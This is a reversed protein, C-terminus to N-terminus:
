GPSNLPEHVRKSLLGFVLSSATAQNKKKRHNKDNAAGGSGIAMRYSPNICDAVAGTNPAKILFYFFL